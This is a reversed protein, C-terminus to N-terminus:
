RSTANYMLFALTVLFMDLDYLTGDQEDPNSGRPDNAYLGKTVADMESRVWGWVEPGLGNKELKIQDLTYRAKRIAEHFEGVHRAM